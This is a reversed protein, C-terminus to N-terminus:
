HFSLLIWVCHLQLILVNGNYLETCHEAERPM